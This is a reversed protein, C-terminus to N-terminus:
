DLPKETSFTFHLHVEIEQNCFPCEVRGCADLAELEWYSWWEEIVEFCHPCVPEPTSSTTKSLM